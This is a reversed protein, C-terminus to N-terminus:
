QTYCYKKRLKMLIKKELRSVKVQTIGLMAATQQQTFEKIYRIYILKKEEDNLEEFIREFMIKNIIRDKEDTDTKAAAEFFDLQNYEEETSKTYISEVFSCAEKSIVIDECSIELAESIENITPDRNYKIVFEQEFKNIRNNNEKYIRSVKILGDDRLYVKIEGIIMPVAYTSFRVNHSIDFKDVSKILGIMGIQFLDEYDVGRNIYRKAVLGVLGTNEEIIQNRARNDGNKLREFLEETHEM